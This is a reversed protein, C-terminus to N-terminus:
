NWTPKQNLLKCIDTLDPQWATMLETLWDTLWDTLWQCTYHTIHYSSMKIDKNIISNCVYAFCEVLWLFHFVYSRSLHRVAIASYLTYHLDHSYNSIQYYLLYNVNNELTQAIERYKQKAYLSRCVILTPITNQLSCSLDIVASLVQIYCTM